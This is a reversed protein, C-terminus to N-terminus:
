TQTTNQNGTANATQTLVRLTLAASTDWSYTAAQQRAKEGLTECLVPDSALALLATAIEDVAYPDVLVGGEGVVEPISAVNSGIVPTGYQMAEVAPLGFGEYLSPMCLAIAGALRAHLVEEEVHGLVDVSDGIGLRKVEDSIAGMWGQAGAIVLRCDDLGRARAQAFAELLRALNKRPELTGVFLFYRDAQDAITNARPEAAQPITVSKERVGPYLRALDQRTAESVCIIANAKRLSPPMLLQEVVRNALLMTDPYHRWVLDHITVVTTIQKSLSLPLHHRPSWFVDVEDREAWRAFQWQTRFLSLVRNAAPYTRVTVNDPGSLDHLLPRDAYLFWELGKRNVLRKLIAQTYRGIGFTPVCLPRADVAIRM